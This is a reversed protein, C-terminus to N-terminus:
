KLLRSLLFFMRLSTPAFRVFGLTEYWEVVSEELADVVIAVGGVESTARVCRALADAVLFSGIGQRQHQQSVALRALLIAPLGRDRPLKYRRASRDPLAGAEIQVISITYYGLIITRDEETVAVFTRSLGKDNAQQASEHLFRDLSDAGCSFSSRRHREKQIAEIIM